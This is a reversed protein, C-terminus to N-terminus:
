LLSIFEQGQDKGAKRGQGKVEMHCTKVRAITAEHRRKLLKQGKGRKVKCRRESESIYVQLAANESVRCANTLPRIASQWLTKRNTLISFQEWFFVNSPFTAEQPETVEYVCHHVVLLKCQLNTKM